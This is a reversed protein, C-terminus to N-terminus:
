GLCKNLMALLEETNFPKPLVGDISLGEFRTQENKELRGSIVMIRGSYGAKRALRALEIGDIGPMNIDIILLMYAALNSQLHEWAVVGDDVTRIRHGARRLVKVMASAVLRDDEILLIEAAAFPKPTSITKTSISDDPLPWDPLTVHFATGEGPVTDVDICGGADTVLHWVTALGLGTGKGVRKTTYFPEFIRERVDPLIGMGNDRVTLRRWGRLTRETFTPPLEMATPPLLVAEILIHPTWRSAQGGTLKEMLTDRANIVLNVIIQHLDSASFALPPMNEPVRNELIIRRDLTPLILDLAGQVTTFLALADASRERKRGFMLLRSTLDAARQVASFVVSMDAQLENDNPRTRRLDDVKIMVPTMLNNFEHAIGGVLEGIARLRRGRAIEEDMRWRETVDEVLVCLRPFGGPRTTLPVRTVLLHRHASPLTHKEVIIGRNRDAEKLVAKCVNAWDSSLTLDHVFRGVASARELGLDEIARQNLTRLRAGEPALELVWMGLPVNEFLATLLEGQEALDEAQKAIRLRLKHQRYGVWSAILLALALVVAVFTIGEERTFHAPEYRGLWKRYLRDYEGSRQLIALGENLRALLVADGKHVAFRHYHELYAAPDRLEAVNHLGFKEILSAVTIRSLITADVQGSTLLKLSHEPSDAYTAKVAPDWARLFLDGVSGAGAVAFRAGRLDELKKPTKDGQLRIMVVNQTNLVTVSYDAWAERGKSSSLLQLMDFEGAIFRQKIAEGPMVVRRIKFDMVKALADLLDVAFGEVPGGPEKQFSYPFTNSFAGVVIERKQPAVVDQTQGAIRLVGISISAMGLVLAAFICTRLRFRSYPSFRRIM